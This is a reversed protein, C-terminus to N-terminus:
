EAPRERMALATFVVGAVFPVVSGVWQTAELKQATEHYGAFFLGFTTLASALTILCGYLLPTKM